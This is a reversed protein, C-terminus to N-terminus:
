MRMFNKCFGRNEKFGTLFTSRRSSSSPIISDHCSSIIEVHKLGLMKLRQIVDQCSIMAETAKTEEEEEKKNNNNKNKVEGTSPVLDDLVCELEEAILKSSGTMMSVLSNCVAEKTLMCEGGGCRTFIDTM